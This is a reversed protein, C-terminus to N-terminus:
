EEDLIYAAPIMKGEFEEESLVLQKGNWGVIPDLQALDEWDPYEGLMMLMLWFQEDPMGTVCALALLGGACVEEMSDDEFLLGTVTEGGSVAEALADALTAPVPSLPIVPPKIPM